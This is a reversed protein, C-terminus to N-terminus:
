PLLSLGVSLDLTVGYKNPEIGAYQRSDTGDIRFYAGFKSSVTIFRSMRASMMINPSFLYKRSTTSYAGTAGFYLVSKKSLQSRLPYLGLGIRIDGADLNYLHKGVGADITLFQHVSSRLGIYAGMLSSAGLQPVILEYKFVESKSSDRDSPLNDIPFARLFQPSLAFFLLLLLWYKGM